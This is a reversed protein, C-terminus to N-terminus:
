VFRELNLGSVRENTEKANREASRVTRTAKKWRGKKVEININAGNSQKM